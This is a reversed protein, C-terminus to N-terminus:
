TAILEFLRVVRQVGEVRRTAETAEDAETKTVLGMLYVVGKETVVKVRTSDLDMEGLLAAKVKGTIWADSSRAMMSSPAAIVLENHVLRVKPISAALAGIRKKFAESPTEGTLLVINNFSTTEVHSSDWLDPHDSILQPVKMEISQDDVQSGTTRRDNIVAAGAIIGTVAAAACGTLQTAGPLMTLLLALRIWRTM